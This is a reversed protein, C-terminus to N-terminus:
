WLANRNGAHSRDVPDPQSFGSIGLAFIIGVCPYACGTVALAFM